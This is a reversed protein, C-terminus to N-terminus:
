GLAAYIIGGDFRARVLTVPWVSFSLPTREGAETVGSGEMMM